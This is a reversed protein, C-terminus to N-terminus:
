SLCNHRVQSFSDEGRPAPLIDLLQGDLVLSVQAADSRTYDPRNKGETLCSRFIRDAGQGSREVLGCHQLAEAICRNRPHQRYIIHSKCVQCM